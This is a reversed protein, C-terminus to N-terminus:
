YIYVVDEISTYNKDPTYYYYKTKVEGEKIENPLLLTNDKKRVCPFFQVDEIYYTGASEFRLFIGLNNINKDFNAKSLSAKCKTM